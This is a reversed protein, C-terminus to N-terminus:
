PEARELPPHGHGRDLECFSRGLTLNVQGLGLGPQRGLPHDLARMRQDGHQAGLLVLGVGDAVVGRLHVLREALGAEVAHQLRLHEAAILEIEGIEQPHHHLDPPAM